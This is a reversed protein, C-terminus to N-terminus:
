QSTLHHNCFCFFEFPFLFTAVTPNLHWQPKTPQNQSRHSAQKLRRYSLSSCSTEPCTNVPTGNLLWRLLLSSKRSKSPYLLAWNKCISWHQGFAPFAPPHDFPRFPNATNGISFILTLSTNKFPCFCSLFNGITEAVVTCRWEITRESDSGMDRIMEAINWLESQNDMIVILILPYCTAHFQEACRQVCSVM